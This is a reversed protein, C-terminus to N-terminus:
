IPYDNFSPSQPTKDALLLLGLYGFVLWYLRDALGGLSLHMHYISLIPMHSLLYVGIVLGATHRLFILRICGFGLAVFGLFVWVGFPWGAVVSSSIFLNHPDQFSNYSEAVDEADDSSFKSLLGLGVHPSKELMQLGRTIEEMRDGVGDQAARQGLSKKGTAVDVAFQAAMTGFLVAGVLAIWVGLVRAMRFTQSKSRYMLFFIATGAVVAALASRTGTLWLCYLFVLQALGLGFRQGLTRTDGWRPLTFLFGVTACTVMYPIHKFIGIFRAGKYMAPAGALLLLLSLACIALCIKWVGSVFERPGILQPILLGFITILFTCAGMTILVLPVNTEFGLLLQLIHQIWLIAITGIAFASYLRHYNRLSPWGGARHVSVLLALGLLLNLAVNGYPHIGGQFILFGLSSPMVGSFSFSIKSLFALGVLAWALKQSRTAANAAQPTTM